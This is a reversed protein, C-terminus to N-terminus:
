KGSNRHNESDRDAKRCRKGSELLVKYKGPDRDVKRLRERIKQVGTDSELM